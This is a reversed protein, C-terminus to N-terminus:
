RQKEDGLLVRQQTRGFTKLEYLRRMNMQAPEYHPDAKIAKGYCRRALRVSRQAEYLIGLLNYYEAVHQDRQEAAKSLLTEADDYEALRMATRIQDLVREYTGPVKTIKSPSPKPEDLVGRVAQRLEDPSIPKELFDAAGLRVAKVAAEISGYATLVIVRPKASDLQNLRELVEIGDVLPMNLDLLLLDPSDNEISVLAEMGNVADRVTYGESELATRLMLRINREDDTILISAPRM